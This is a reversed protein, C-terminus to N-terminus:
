SENPRMAETGSPNLTVRPAANSRHLLSLVGYAIVAVALLSGLVAGYWGFFVLVAILGTVGMMWRISFQRSLIRRSVFSRLPQSTAVVAACSIVFLLAAFYLADNSFIDLLTYLPMVADAATFAIATALLLEGVVNRRSRAVVWVILLAAWGWKGYTGVARRFQEGNNEFTDRSVPTPGGGVKRLGFNYGTLRGDAGFYFGGSFQTEPFTFAAETTNPKDPRNVLELRPNGPLNAELDEKTWGPKDRGGARGASMIRQLELLAQENRARLAMADSWARDQDARFRLIEREKIAVLLGCVLLFLVWLGARLSRM